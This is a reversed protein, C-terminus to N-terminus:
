FARQLIGMVEDFSVDRPNPAIQRSNTMADNALTELEEQKLGVGRLNQPIGIDVSLERVAQVAREAARKPSMKRIPEGMAAAIHSYKELRSVSNWEMVYPLM